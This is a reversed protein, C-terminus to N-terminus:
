TISFHVVRHYYLNIVEKLLVALVGSMNAESTNM